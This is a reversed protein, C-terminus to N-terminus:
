SAADEAPKRDAREDVHDDAGDERAHHPVVLESDGIRQRARELQSPEGADAAQDGEAGDNRHSSHQEDELVSLGTDEEGHRAVAQERTPRCLDMPLMAHRVHRREDGSDEDSGPREDAEGAPGRPSAVRPDKKPRMVRVCHIRTDMTTPINRPAANGSLARWVWWPQAADSRLMSDATNRRIILDSITGRSKAVSTTPIAPCPASMFRTPRRASREIM